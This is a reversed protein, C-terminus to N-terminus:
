SETIARTPTVDGAAQEALDGGRDDRGLEESNRRGPPGAGDTLHDIRDHSVQPSM